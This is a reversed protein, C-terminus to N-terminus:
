PLADLICHEPSNVKSSSFFAQTEEVTFERESHLGDSFLELASLIFCGAMLINQLLRTSFPLDIEKDNDRSNLDILGMGTIIKIDIVYKYILHLLLQSELTTDLYLFDMDVISCRCRQHVDDFPSKDRLATMRDM